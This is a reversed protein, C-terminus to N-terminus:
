FLPSFSQFFAHVGRTSSPSGSTEMEGVWIKCATMLLAHRQQRTTIFKCLRYNPANTLSYLVPLTIRSFHLPLGGRESRGIRGGDGATAIVQDLEFLDGVGDADRDLLLLQPRRRRRRWSVLLM